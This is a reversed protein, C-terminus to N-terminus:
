KDGLMAAIKPEMAEAWIQYGAENPHLLDPMITKSLSGDDQLFRDNINLFHVRDEDALRELQSNIEKNLMRLPDTPSKGRPFIALLLVKSDPLRNELEELIATIGAVTEEAPDQRHGTNNTGIMLVILKPEIGEVEGNRLRWIVQETRDGSFGINFARRNSYFEDWVKKGSTEWSHTISDGIMLLDVGEVDKLAALKEEHRPMWWDKAWAADQVEPRTSAFDKVSDQANALHTIFFVLSLVYLAAVRM